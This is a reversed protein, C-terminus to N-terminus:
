RATLAFGIEVAAGAQNQFTIAFVSVAPYVSFGLVPSWNSSPDFTMAPVNGSILADGNVTFGTLYVGIASAVTGAALAIAANSMVVLRDAVFAETVTPALAATSAADAVSTAQASGGAAILSRLQGDSSPRFPSAGSPAGVGDMSLKWPNKGPSPRGTPNVGRNGRVNPSVVAM